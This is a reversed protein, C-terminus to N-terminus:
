VNSLRRIITKIEEICMYFPLGETVTRNIIGTIDRYASRFIDVKTELQEVKQQLLSNQEFILEDREKILAQLAEINDEAHTM